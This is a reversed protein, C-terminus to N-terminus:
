RPACKICTPTSPDYELRKVQIEDGCKVCCGYELVEIRGLAARIRQKEVQRRRSTEAAMEQAQMADMRSLRGVRSQDLTVAERSEKGALETECIEELRQELMTKFEEIRHDVTEEMLM